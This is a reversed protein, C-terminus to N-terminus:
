NISEMNKLHLEMEKATQIREEPNRALAKLILTALEDPCGKCFKRPDTPEDRIRSTMVKYVSEGSFPTRKTLLEYGLLGLAYIDTRVDIQSSLLYEPTIYDMTAIVGCDREDPIGPSENRGSCCLDAIKVTGDETLLINEPKINRHIIGASHIAQVGRCCQILIELVETISVSGSSDLHRASLDGNGALKMSYGIHTDDNIFECVKVINPHSFSQLSNFDHRIRNVIRPEEALDTALLKLAVEKGACKIDRCRYVVSMSGSGIEDLLQYRSNILRPTEKETSM